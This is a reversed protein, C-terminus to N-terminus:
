LFFLKCCPLQDLLAATNLSHSSEALEGCSRADVVPKKIAAVDRAVPTHKQFVLHVRFSGGSRDLGGVLRFPTKPIKSHSSPAEVGLPTQRFTGRM